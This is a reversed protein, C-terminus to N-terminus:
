YDEENRAVVTWTNGGYTIAAGLQFAETGWSEVTLVPLTNYKNVPDDEEGVARALSVRRPRIGHERNTKSVTAKINSTVAGEPISGAVAIRAASMTMSHVEGDNAEYKTKPM